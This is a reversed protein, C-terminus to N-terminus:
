VTLLHYKKVLADAYKQIGRQLVDGIGWNLQAKNLWEIAADLEHTAFRKANKLQKIKRLDDYPVLNITRVTRIEEEGGRYVAEKRAESFSTTVLHLQLHRLERLLILMACETDAMKLPTENLGREALDFCLVDEMAVFEMLSARLYAVKMIEKDEDSVSQPDSIQQRFRLSAVSRQYVQPLNRLAKKTEKELSSFILTSEFYPPEDICLRIQTVMNIKHLDLGENSVLSEV